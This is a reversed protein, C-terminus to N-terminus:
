YQFYIFPMIDSQRTQIVIFIVIALVLAQVLLPTKSYGKKAKDSWDTPLFHFIMAGIIVLVIMLYGEIFQAAVEPHFDTFIQTAMDGIDSMSRARFFMFSFAILNFTVFINLAIRWRSAKKELDRNKKSAGFLMKHGVLFIGQLSGWIMFMWSAGHWLGGVVMTTMLNVHRRFKGCRNGGMPIYVYDRLWTSLSIHWRHWFETPSQSKFPARFNDLFRFGLLLAIGIAMDSYGSFDCYLQIIFGYIGMVNEFGSYLSPNDFIRDVFNQSIFDAVVVKKVLGCMILFLGESVMARDAVPNSEIQPLMDKARVM